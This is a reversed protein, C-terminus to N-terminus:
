KDKPYFGYKKNLQMDLYHLLEIEDVTKNLCLNRDKNIQEILELILKDDIGYQLAGMPVLSEYVIKNYYFENVLIQNGANPHSDCKLTMEAHLQMAVTGLIICVIFYKIKKM